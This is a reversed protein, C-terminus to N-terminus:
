SSSHPREPSQSPPGLSHSARGTRLTCRVYPECMTCGRMAGTRAALARVDLGEEQHLRLLEAFTVDACICRDVRITDDEPM